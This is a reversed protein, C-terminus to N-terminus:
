EGGQAVHKRDPEAVQQSKEQKTCKTQRRFLLLILHWLCAWIVIAPIVIAALILSKNQIHYNEVLFHCLKFGPLHIATGITALSPYDGLPAYKGCFCVMMFWSAAESFLTLIITLPITKM